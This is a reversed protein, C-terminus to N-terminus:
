KELIHTLYEQLQNVNQLHETNGNLFDDNILSITTNFQTEIHNELCTVFSFVGLSDLESDQGIIASDHSKNMSIKLESNIDDITKYIVELIKSESNM